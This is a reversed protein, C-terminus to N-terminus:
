APIHRTLEVQRIRHYVTGLVDHDGVDPIVAIGTLWSGGPLPDSHIVKGLLIVPGEDEKSSGSARLFSPFYLKLRLLRGPRTPEDAEIGFGVPSMARLRGIRRGHLRTHPFESFEVVDDAAVRPYRRQNSTRVINRIPLLGGKREFGFEVQTTEM